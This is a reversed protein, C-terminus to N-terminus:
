LSIHNNYYKIKECIIESKNDINNIIKLINRRVKRPFIIIIINKSVVIYNFNIKKIDECKSSKIIFCNTGMGIKEEIYSGTYSGFFSGLSFSIIKYFDNMFDNLVYGALIVWIITTVLQLIGGLLKKGNNVVILRLTALADDIIKFIFIFFYIM